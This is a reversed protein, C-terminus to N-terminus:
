QNSDHLDVILLYLVHLMFFHFMYLKSLFFASTLKTTM